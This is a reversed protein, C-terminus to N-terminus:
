KLKAALQASLAAPDAIADTVAYGAVYRGTRFVFLRGLYKDAVQFAEEGLKAPAAEPFRAQFQKIVEAASAPTSEIVVFAKGFDYDAVYGRKLVGYGLVSKPVLRLRQQKESPFWSLAPPLTTSGPYAKDLAAAWEKLESSYNAEPEASIELYYKDKAFIMRRALIQGATGVKFDPEQPDRTATFMGYASEADGMDSVDVVFSADGRKCTVGRMSQFNYLFYGESNGDMYEYLNDFTYSRPAGSQTWGPVMNCAPAVARGQATAAICGISVLAGLVKMM